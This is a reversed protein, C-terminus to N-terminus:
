TVLHIGASVAKSRRLEDEYRQIEKLLEDQEARELQDLPYLLVHEPMTLAEISMWMCFPMLDRQIRMGQGGDQLLQVKMEMVPSLISTAGEREHLKGVLMKAGVLAVVWGKLANTIM